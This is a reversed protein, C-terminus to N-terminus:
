AGLKSNQIYENVADIHAQITSDVVIFNGKENQSTIAGSDDIESFTYAVRSGEGTIFHTFSTLKKM